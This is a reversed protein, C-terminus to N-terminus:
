ESAELIPYGRWEFETNENKKFCYNSHALRVFSVSFIVYLNWYFLIWCWCALNQNLFCSDWMEERRSLKPFVNMSNINPSSGVANLHNLRKSEPQMWNSQHHNICVCHLEVTINTCSSGEKPQLRRWTLSWMKRSWRQMNLALFPLRQWM